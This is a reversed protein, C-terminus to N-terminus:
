IRAWTASRGELMAQSHALGQAPWWLRMGVWETLISFFLALFLWSIAQGLATLTRSIPGQRVERRRPDRAPEAM